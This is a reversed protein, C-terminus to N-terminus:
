IDLPAWLVKHLFICTRIRVLTVYLHTTGPVLARPITCLLCLELWSRVTIVPYHNRAWKKDDATGRICLLHGAMKVLAYCCWQKVHDCSFGFPTMAWRHLALDCSVAACCFKLYSTCYCFHKIIVNVPFITVNPSNCRKILRRGCKIYYIFVTGGFNSNM